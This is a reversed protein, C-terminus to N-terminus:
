SRHHCGMGGERLAFLEDALPEISLCRLAGELFWRMADAAAVLDDPDGVVDLDCALVADFLERDGHLVDTLTTVSTRVTVAPETAANDDLAVHMTETGISLAVTRLGLAARMRAHAQPMERAVCGLADVIVAVPTRTM